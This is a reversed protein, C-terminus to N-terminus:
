QRAPFLNQPAWPPVTGDTSLNYAMLCACMATAQVLFSGRQVFSGVCCILQSKM